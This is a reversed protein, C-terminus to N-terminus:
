PRLRYVLAWEQRSAVEVTGEVAFALNRLELPPRCRDSPGAEDFVVEVTAPTGATLSGGLEQGFLCGAQNEAHLFARYFLVAGTRSPEVRFVM